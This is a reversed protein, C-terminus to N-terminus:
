SAHDLMPEELSGGVILQLKGARRQQDAKAETDAWRRASRERARMARADRKAAGTEIARQQQRRARAHARVKAHYSATTTETDM